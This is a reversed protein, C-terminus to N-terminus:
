WYNVSVSTCSNNETVDFRSTGPSTSTSSYWGSATTTQGIDTFNVSLNFECGTNHFEVNNASVPLEVCDYVSLDVTNLGNGDHIYCSSSSSSGADCTSNGAEVIDGAENTSGAGCPM